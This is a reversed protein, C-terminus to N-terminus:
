GVPDAVVVLNDAYRHTVRDFAGGCTVLVLRAPGTQDFADTDAALRAKPVRRVSVVRYSVTRDGAGVEIEDGRRARGLEALAGIGYTRSDVHGALVVSGFPDGPRGGGTWWGVRAPDDPVVLSGDAATDAPGVRATRGSPL